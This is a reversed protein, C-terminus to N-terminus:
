AALNKLKALVLAQLEERGQDAKVRVLVGRKEYYSILDETQKKYVDLRNIVTEENDDPRQYLEGNCVDCVGAIKPPVNIVHFVSGCQRCIRRGALRGILIQRPVELLFVSNIKSRNEALMEDLLCAQELTRPFGDFMYSKDKGGAVLAERVIQMIVSDPVLSGKEMYSKAMKGIPTGAKVAERLMDGTSLHRYSTVSRIYEAVTGKGAGPAGLLIITKM